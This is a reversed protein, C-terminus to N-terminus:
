RRSRRGRQQNSVFPFLSHFVTLSFNTPLTSPITPTSPFFPNHKSKRRTRLM